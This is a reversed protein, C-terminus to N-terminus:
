IILTADGFSYFRYNQAIAEQYARSIIQWSSFASVLMILSSEPLHFNTILGDVFKFKYGPKIFINTDGSQPHITGLSDTCTELVRCSTTGVAVVRRGESKAHNLRKATAQDLTFYESHLVGSKIQEPTPPKFTGLGVHLTVFELQYDNTTLRKLLRKTFHLGATPAASSGPSKAFVNQYKRRLTSESETSKIYPPLPMHGLKNLLKWKVNLLQLSTSSIIKAWHKPDFFIQQGPKLGPHSIFEWNTANLKRLLLIEVKGGTTKRGFLRAPIVKSNNFVLVDTPKLLQPLQYFRHHALKGSHRNIVLLRSHDRPKFPTQAIQREPLLYTFLPNNPSM